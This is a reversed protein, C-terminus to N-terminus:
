MKIASICHVSRMPTVVGCTAIDDDNNCLLIVSGPRTSEMMRAFECVKGIDPKQGVWAAFIVCVSQTFSDV